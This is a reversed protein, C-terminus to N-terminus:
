PGALGSAGFGSPTTPWIRRPRPSCCRPVTSISHGARLSGTLEYTLTDGVMEYSGVLAIPSTGQGPFTITVDVAMLGDDFFVWTGSTAAVRSGDTFGIFFWTGVISTDQPELPDAGCAWSGTGLVLVAMAAALAKSM